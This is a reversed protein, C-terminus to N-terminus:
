EGMLVTETWVCAGKNNAETQEVLKRVERMHGTIVCGVMTSDAYVKIIMRM